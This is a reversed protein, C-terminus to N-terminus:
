KIAMRQRIDRLRSIQAVLLPLNSLSLTFMTIYGLGSVVDGAKADPALCLRLMAAATLGLGLIEMLGFHLGQCDSLKIRENRMQQFHGCVQQRDGGAIVEVEREFQDNLRRNLALTKRGIRRALFLAGALWVLCFLAVKFDFLALLILAGGMSYATNLVVPVEREFFEVLERSLQSRAAIRSAPHGQEYHEAILFCALDGYIRTFSRTDHLRRLTAIAMYASQVAIFLGIGGYSARLLDNVAMGLLYPQLLRLTNELNFLAYTGLIQRRYTVFLARLPGQKFCESRASLDAGKKRDKKVKRRWVGKAQVGLLHLM